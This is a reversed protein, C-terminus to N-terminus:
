FSYKINFAVFDRDNILNQRGAGFYSTYSLDASWSSLYSATLGLTVARRGELFNGGPGPTNGKVDHSWAIRPSLSVAGIANNYDLRYLIRYGWSDADAFASSPEIIGAGPGHTYALAQNGSLYTGPVELRLDSKDPMDHVRTYGIEGVLASQDTNLFGPGFVKTASAQVQTMDRLIYGPIEHEFQMLTNEVQNNAALDPSIAGLAAFLLELDDVQLPVDLRHSVEGQLAIGSGGLLTNFSLGFLQIDEPYEIFYRATKAYADTAAARVATAVDGGTATQSAVFGAQQPTMGLAQGAASGAAIAGAVDGPNAALYAGTTGAVTPGSVTGISDAAGAGALTGTRASILPLRSHYNVFFLGFETENLGPAFVRLAAGFQGQDDANRTPGKPVAQFVDAADLNGGDPFAGFGLLVKKAGAGVIDTTSFYSGVPDLEVAEWDYLYVGELNFNEGLGLSAYAMGEPVLAEKLESGPQRLASLNVPNLINISNQIFTSEGWSVVQEGLRVQLPNGALDTRGWVYADLLDVDRGVLDKGESSLRTRARDEQANEWDYFATGRIFAGAYRSRVELESTIRGVNSVLGRHYNLNGDDGNVSFANGGNAIGILDKDRKQVRWQLGYSLTTDLRAQFTEGEHLQFAGGPSSWLLVLLAIALVPCSLARFCRQRPSITHVKMRM